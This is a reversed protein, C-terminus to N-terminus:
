SISYMKGWERMVLALLEVRAPHCTVLVEFQKNMKM